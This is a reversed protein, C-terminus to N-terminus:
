LGDEREAPKSASFELINGQKILNKRLRDRARALRSKVTGVKIDLVQAIQEYSLGDVVRLTLIARGEVDLREMAQALLQQRERGLVVEEPQPATDPFDLQVPEGAEEVTMSLTPRRKKKRLHDICLNTTLRYLWTSFAAEFKYFELGQWSKVFAEQALDEADAPDSVMRLCLSYVQKEYARVLQAFAETDGAKVARILNKEEEM